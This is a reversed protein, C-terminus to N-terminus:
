DPKCFRLCCVHRVLRFQAKGTGFYCYLKARGCSAKWQVFVIVFISWDIRGSDVAGLLGGLSNDRVCLVSLSFGVNVFVM